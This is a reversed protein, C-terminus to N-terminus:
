TNIYKHRELSLFSISSFSVLRSSVLRSSVLRSSVWDEWRKMEIEIHRWEYIDNSREYITHTTHNTNDWSSSDEVRAKKFKSVARKTSTTSSSSSADEEMDGYHELLEEPTEYPPNEEEESLEDTRARKTGIQHFNTQKFYIYEWSITRLGRKSAYEEELKAHKKRLKEEWREREARQTAVRAATEQTSTVLSLLTLTTNSM